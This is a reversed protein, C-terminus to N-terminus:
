ASPDIIIVPDSEGRAKRTRDSALMVEYEFAGSAETLPVSIWDGPELSFEPVGAALLKVVFTAQTLNCIEFEDPKRVVAASPRVRFEGSVDIIYADSKKIKPRQDQLAM